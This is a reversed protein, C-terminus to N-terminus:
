KFQTKKSSNKIPNVKIDTKSFDREKKESKETAIRKSTRFGCKFGTSTYATSQVRNKFGERNSENRLEEERRNDGENVYVIRGDDNLRLNSIM